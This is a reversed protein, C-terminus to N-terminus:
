LGSDNTVAAGSASLLDAVEVLSTEGCLNRVTREDASEVIADGLAREKASGLIRIAVGARSLRLALEAFRELPWRKAPGYEAGPILAVSAEDSDLGFRELTATRDTASLELQPAEIEPLLPEDNQAGLAVFRKVTQDLVHEDFARIDNLLGYRWEGRFGTRRPIQAFFPILASKLSRPLVIAQTYREARLARGLAHRARLGLAGHSVPQEISRSIEPMCELVPRSWAPALVHLEAAPDRRKLRKYLSQAMVMDGVWSPGVILLKQERSM